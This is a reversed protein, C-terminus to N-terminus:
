PYEIAQQRRPALTRRVQQRAALKRSPSAFAFVFNPRLFCCRWLVSHVAIRLRFCVLLPRATLCARPVPSSSAERHTQLLSM